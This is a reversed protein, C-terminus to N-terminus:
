KKPNNKKDAKDKQKEEACAVAEILANNEKEDPDSLKVHKNIAPVPDSLLGHKNVPAPPASATIAPAPSVTSTTLSVPINSLSPKTAPTPITLSLTTSTNNTHPLPTDHQPPPPSHLLSPHVACACISNDALIKKTGESCEIRAPVQIKSQECLSRLKTNEDIIKSMDSLFDPNNLLLTRFKEQRERAATQEKLKELMVTCLDVCEKMFTLSDTEAFVVPHVVSQATRKKLVNWIPPAAQNPRMLPQSRQASYRRAPLFYESSNIQLFIHGRDVISDVFGATKFYVAAAGTHGKDKSMFISCAVLESRYANNKNLLTELTAKDPIATQLHKPIFVVISYRPDYVERKVVLTFPLAPPSGGNLLCSMDSNTDSLMNKLNVFELFDTTAFSYEGTDNLFGISLHKFRDGSRIKANIVDLSAGPHKAGKVYGVSCDPKSQTAGVGKEDSMVM